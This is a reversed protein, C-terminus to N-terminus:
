VTKRRAGPRTAAPLDGSLIAEITAAVGCQDQTPAHWKATARISEIANGMAVGLGAERVMELDNIDDGIAVIQEGKRYLAIHAHGPVQRLCSCAIGLDQRNASPQM